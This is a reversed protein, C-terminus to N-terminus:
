CMLVSRMTRATGCRSTVQRPAVPPGKGLLFRALSVGLQACVSAVEFIARVFDLESHTKAARCLHLAFNLIERLLVPATNFGCWALHREAVSTIFSM